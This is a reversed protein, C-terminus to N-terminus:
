LGTGEIKSSRTSLGIRKVAVYALLGVAITIAGLLALWPRRWVSRVIMWCSFLVFLAPTVPYGWTDYPRTASPERRRRVFVTSVTLAASASLTFDIYKLLAVFGFAILVWVALLAQLAISLLPGGGDSRLRLFGLASYDQGMVEYVCPGVMMM